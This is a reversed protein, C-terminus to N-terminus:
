GNARSPVWRLPPQPPRSMDIKKLRNLLSRYSMHLGLAAQRRNWRTERLARLIAEDDVAPIRRARASRVPPAAEPLVAPPPLKATAELVADIEPSRQVARIKEVLFEESGTLVYSILMQELEHFNGPWSYGRLMNLAGASLPPRELGLERSHLGIFYESLMPLDAARERLPALRATFTSITHFFEPRLRHSTDRKLDNRTASILRFRLPTHREGGSASQLSEQLIRSLLAQTTLALNEVDDLFLTGSGLRRLEELLSGRTHVDEDDFVIRCDEEGEFSLCTAKIFRQEHFNSHAHVWRAAIEKGTGAEGQLVIPLDTPAVAQLRAVLEAAALSSGFLVEDPPLTRPPPEPATQLTM